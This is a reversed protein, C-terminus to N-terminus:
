TRLADREIEPMRPPATEWLLREDDADLGYAAHVERAITAELARMEARTDRLAEAHAVHLARLSALAARSLKARSAATSLFADTALAAPDRLARGPSDVGHEALGTTLAADHARARRAVAEIADVAAEVRERQAASPPAIPLAAVKEGLPSLAEDKLHVLTRWNHWWMLPSNLVALLWRDDTPLLFGKDNLLCGEREIAYAPRFQIVQWVLKPRTFLAHYDVTDQIEYWAYPGAKRGGWAGEHGSPRPALRDRFRALHRAIAPFRALDVGRRAFILWRTAPAPAWRALDQGRLLPQLLTASAPDEACLRARTAEDVVFAENLGTLVGRYPKCGAHESLSPRGARLKGLLAQVADPELSWPSAGLRAQRITRAGIAIAHRAPPPGKRLAIVCPFADAGPFLPAHGFDEISELTAERTLLARLETAYAGRLWKNSTVFALRGGPALKALAREFFYVFLDANGHFTSFTREFHAKAAPGLRAQRVYPPNGVVVDFPAPWARWDFARPTIAPDDVVADGVRVRHELDDESAPETGRTRLATRAREIAAADVDLGFLCAISAPPPRPAGLARLAQQVRAHEAVLRDHAAILLAGDGCAPDLVRLADIAEGHARWAAITGVREVPARREDLLAGLSAEVLRNALPGPTYVVGHARRTGDVDRASM